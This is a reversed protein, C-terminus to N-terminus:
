DCWVECKEKIDVDYIVAESCAGFPDGELFIVRDGEDINYCYTKAEFKEGNIIFLEDNYSTEVIYHTAAFVSSGILLFALVLFIKRM